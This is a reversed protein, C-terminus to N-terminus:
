LLKLLQAVYHRADQCFTLCLFEPWIVNGSSHYVEFTAVIIDQVNCAATREIRRGNGDVPGAGKTFIAVTGGPGSVQKAKDLRCSQVALGAHKGLNSLDRLLLLDRHGSSFPQSQRLKAYLRASSQELDSLGLLQLKRDFDKESECIPFGAHFKGNAKRRGTLVTHKNFVRNMAIDLASRVKVLVEHFLNKARESVEGGQACKHYERILEQTLEDARDFIGEMEPDM